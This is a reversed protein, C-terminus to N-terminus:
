PKSTYGCVKSEQLFGNVEQARKTWRRSVMAAGSTGTGPRATGPWELPDDMPRNALLEAPEVDLRRLDTSVYDESPPADPCRPVAPCPFGSPNPLTTSWARPSWPGMSPVQFAVPSRKKKLLFM